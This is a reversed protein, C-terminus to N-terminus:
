SLSAKSKLKKIYEDYHIVAKKYAEFKNKGYAHGFNSGKWVRCFWGIGNVSFICTTSLQIHSWGLINDKFIDM